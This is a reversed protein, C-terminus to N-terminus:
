AANRICTEEHWVNFADSRIERYVCAALQHRQPRFHGYIFSHASLFDQAQRSSKFRQM